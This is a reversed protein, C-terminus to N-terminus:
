EYINQFIEPANLAYSGLYTGVGQGVAVRKAAEKAAMGAVGRAALAGGGVGPVLATLMNPVQEAVTELAFPVYDGIGKVDSLSKYRAGYKQEIEKQTEAAEAMQKRAYEDAGVTSAALAPLVDGLASGTQLVGRSVARSIMDTIGTDKTPQEEKGAVFRGLEDAQPGAVGFKNRIAAQTAENAGTYNKDQASYKNFIAEKTAENANVYNPDNLIELLDAM